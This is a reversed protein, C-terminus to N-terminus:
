SPVRGFLLAVHVPEIFPSHGVLERHIGDEFQARQDPTPLKDGGLASYLSGVIEDISLEDTYDFTAESLDFGAARLSERYRQQSKTDTGCSAKSKTDFWRDLYDRLAQSWSSDQLWLPTGNTVIAVGGRERILPFVSAFLREHNMWHLAQAITVAGVRQSGLAAGLARIDADSGIMWTANTAGQKQGAQRARQLMDPEPDIAVVAQVRAALPLTLQGTGCGLDVVIDRQTLDFAQLLLDIVPAPYGRRYRHYFDVAEGSFGLSMTM